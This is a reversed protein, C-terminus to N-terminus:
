KTAKAAAEFLNASFDKQAAVLEEVFVFGANVIERAEPVVEAFSLAEFAPFTPLATRPFVNGALDNWAAITGLTFDQSQKISTVVADQLAAAVATTPTTKTSM